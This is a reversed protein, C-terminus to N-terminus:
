GAATAAACRRRRAADEQDDDVVQVEVEAVGPADAIEELPNRVRQHVFAVHEADDRGARRRQRDIRGVVPLDELVRDLLDRAVPQLGGLDNLSGSARFPRGFDAVARM